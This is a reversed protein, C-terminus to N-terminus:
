QNFYDTGTKGPHRKVWGKMANLEKLSKAAYDEYEM